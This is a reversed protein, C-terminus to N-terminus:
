TLGGPQTGKWSRSCRWTRLPQVSPLVSVAWCTNTCGHTVLMTKRGLRLCLVMGSALLILEVGTLVLVCSFSIKSLSKSRHAVIKQHTRQDSQPKRTSACYVDSCIYPSFSNTKQQQAGSAHVHSYKKSQCIHTCHHFSMAFSGKIGTDRGRWEQMRQWIQKTCPDCQMSVRFYCPLHKKLAALLKLHSYSSGKSTLATVLTTICTHMAALVTVSIRSASFTYFKQKQPVKCRRKICRTAPSFIAAQCPRQHHEREEASTDRTICFCWMGIGTSHIAETRGSATLFKNHNLM